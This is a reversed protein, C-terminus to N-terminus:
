GAPLEINRDDTGADVTGTRGLVQRRRTVINQQHIFTIEGCAGGAPRPTNEM